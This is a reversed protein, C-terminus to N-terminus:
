LSSPSLSEDIKINTKTENNDIFIKKATKGVIGTTIGDFAGGVLGGMLPVAKGLKSLGKTGFKTVLNTSTKENIINLMKLSATQAIHTMVREGTKIGLDKLIEKAGNGVMSVYVMSKVQDSQIDHGGMYAIATIMRIQLYVVSAVNAPISFPMFALGGIGTLFGSTASKTVQWKILKDVQGGLDGKSQLYSNGLDYASEAGMFGTIAKSYAWDLMKMVLGQNKLNNNDM